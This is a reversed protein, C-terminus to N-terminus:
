RAKGPPERPLLVLALIIAAVPVVMMALNLTHAAHFAIPAAKSIVWDSYHSDMNPSRPANSAAGHVVRLADRAQERNIGARALEADSDFIAVSLLPFLASGLSYSTGAVSTKVASVVGGLRAPASSMMITVQPTQVIAGGISTLAAMAAVAVIPTDIELWYRGLLSLTLVALGAVLMARVGVRAAAWGAGLAAIASLLTAPILLLAFTQASVGRIFFNYTLMTMAGGQILSSVAGATLAADFRPSRFMGLHLAPEDTRMEWWVFAAATLIGVLIPALSGLHLGTQLQSIGYILGILAVAVLFLGPIDTTRHSRQTEPVYRWTIVLVVIALVPTILFGSRWGAHRVVLIAIAPPAVGFVYVVALFRAIAAARQEPPFVMNIIALSLSSLFAFSVGICARAIMLVAANPAAAALLGSIVAGCAGAMFMRKAGYKDGLVGAGLVAASLTLSALCAVFITTGASCQLGREVAALNSSLVTVDGVVIANGLGMALTTMTAALGTVPTQQTV